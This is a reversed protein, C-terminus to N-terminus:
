VWISMGQVICLLTRGTKFLLSLMKKVQWATLNMPIQSYEAFLINASISQVLASPAFCPTENYDESNVCTQLQFTTM